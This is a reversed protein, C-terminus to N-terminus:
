VVGAICWECIWVHALHNIALVCAVSLDGRDIRCWMYSGYVAWTNVLPRGKCLLLEHM